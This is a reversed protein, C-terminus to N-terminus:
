IEDTGREVKIADPQSFKGNPKGRPLTKRPRKETISNYLHDRARKRFIRITDDMTGYRCLLATVALIYMGPAINSRERNMLGISHSM